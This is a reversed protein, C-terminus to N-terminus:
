RSRYVCLVQMVESSDQSDVGYSHTPSFGTRSWAWHDVRTGRRIHLEDLGNQMRDRVRLLDDETPLRWDFRGGVTLNQCLDSAQYWNLTRSTNTWMLGTPDVWTGAVPKVPEETKATTAAQTQKSARLAEAKLQAVPALPSNSFQRVFKDLLEPDGTDRVAAWAEEAPDIKPKELAPKPPAVPEVKPAPQPLPAPLEVLVIKQEAAEMSVVKQWSVAPEGKRKAQILNDGPIGEVKKKEGATMAFVSGNVEVSCDANVTIFLEGAKPEANHIALLLGDDAGVGRLRQESEPTLKFDVGYQLVLTALRKSSLGGSLGEMVEAESLPKAAKKAPPAQAIAVASLIALVFTILFRSSHILRRMSRGLQNRSYLLSLSHCNM